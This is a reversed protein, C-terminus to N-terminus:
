GNDRRVGQRLMVAMQDIVGVLEQLVLDARATLMAISTDQAHDAHAVHEHEHRRRM